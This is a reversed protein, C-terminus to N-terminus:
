RLSGADTQEFLRSLELRNKCTNLLEGDEFFQVHTNLGDYIDAISLDAPTPQERLEPNSLRSQSLRPMHATDSTHTRELRLCKEVLRNGIVATEPLVLDVPAFKGAYPFEYQPDGIYVVGAREFQKRKKEALSTFAASVVTRGGTLFSRRSLKASHIPMLQEKSLGSHLSRQHAGTYNSRVAHRQLRYDSPQRTLQQKETLTQPSPQQHNDSHEPASGDIAIHDDLFSAKKKLAELERSAVVEDSMVPTVNTLFTNPQDLMSEHTVERRRVELASQIKPPEVLLASRLSRDQYMSDPRNDPQIVISNMEAVADWMPNLQDRRRLNLLEEKIKDLAAHDGSLTKYFKINFDIKDYNDAIKMYLRHKALLFRKSEQDLFDPLMEERVTTGLKSCERMIWVCGDFRSDLGHKLIVKLYELKLKKVEQDKEESQRLESESRM